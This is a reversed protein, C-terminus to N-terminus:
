ILWWTLYQLEMIQFWICTNRSNVSLFYGDYRRHTRETRELMWIRYAVQSRLMQLINSHNKDLMAALGSCDGERKRAAHHFLTQPPVRVLWIWIESVYRIVYCSSHINKKLSGGSGQEAGMIFRWQNDFHLPRLSGSMNHLVRNASLRTLVPLPSKKWTSHAKRDLTVVHNATRGSSLFFVSFSVWM